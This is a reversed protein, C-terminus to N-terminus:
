NSEDEVQRDSVYIQDPFGEAGQKPLVIGCRDFSTIMQNIQATSGELRNASPIEEPPILPKLWDTRYAFAESRQQDTLKTDVVREYERETMVQNPVRAPWFTPLYPDYTKEYGSRCSATDTQWPVAMWRTISGPRQGGLIPGYHLDLIQADFNVGFYPESSTERHKLRFAEAYMGSLRMPWTMECGPHFADALCYDM